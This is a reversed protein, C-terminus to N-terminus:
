PAAPDFLSNPGPSTDFPGVSANPYWNWHWSWMIYYEIFDRVAENPHNAHADFLEQPTRTLDTDNMFVDISDYDADFVIFQENEATWPKWNVPQDANHRIRGKKDHIFEYLYSKIALSLAQRGALNDNTYQYREVTGGDTLGLFKQYFFDLEAVHIAGKYFVWADEFPIADHKTPDSGWDFRYVYINVHHKKKIMAMNRASLQAGLYTDVEDILETGFQYNNKFTQTSGEGILDYFPQLYALYGPGTGDVAETVLQDLSKGQQFNFPWDANWFNNENKTTGVVM